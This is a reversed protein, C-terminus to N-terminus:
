DNLQAVITFSIGAQVSDPVPPAVLSIIDGPVCAVAEGFTVSVDEPSPGNFDIAGIFSGNLLLSYSVDSQTPTSAFAVSGELGLPLTMNDVVPYQLLTENPNPQNEVFVFLRISDFEWATDTPSGGQSVLRQGVLGDLPLTEQPSSLILIYVLQTGIMALSNFTAASVVAQTVLFLSGDFSVVDFPAYSTNPQWEGRPNWQSTPITFPGLVQHNTLTIFIQNGGVPQSIFDISVPTPANMQLDLVAEFLNWFNLDVQTATLDSGNGGGWRTNDVTRFTLSQIFAM